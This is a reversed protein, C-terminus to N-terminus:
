GISLLRRTTDQFFIFSFTPKDSELVVIRLNLADKFVKTPGVYTTSLDCPDDKGVDGYRAHGLVSFTRQAHMGLVTLRSWM